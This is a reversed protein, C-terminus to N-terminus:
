TRHPLREVEVRTGRDSAGPTGVALRPQIHFYGGALQIPKMPNPTLAQQSKHNKFQFPEWGHYFLVQGPRMTTSVRARSEFSDIDNHVRVRDGDAIGRARADGPGIVLLPEGRELRLLTAEDRWSTHISWRTHGSTMQLPYNGGIHPLDKHIPLESLTHGRLDRLRARAPTRFLHLRVRRNRGETELLRLGFGTAPPAAADGETHEQANPDALLPLVDLIQVNSEKLHFFWGSEGSRPATESPASVAPTLLDQAAQLPYPADVAIWIRFRRASEGQPILITDVM